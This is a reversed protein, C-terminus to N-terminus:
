KATREPTKGRHTRRAVQYYEKQDTNRMPNMHTTKNMRKDEALTEKKASQEKVIMSNRNKQERQEENKILPAKHKEM